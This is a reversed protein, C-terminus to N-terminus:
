IALTVPAYYVDKPEVVTDNVFGVPQLVVVFQNRVNQPNHTVLMGCYQKYGQWESYVARLRWFNRLLESMSNFKEGWECIVFAHEEMYIHDEIRPLCNFAKLAADMWIGIDSNDDMMTLPKLAVM